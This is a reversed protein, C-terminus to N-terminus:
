HCRQHKPATQYMCYRQRNNAKICWLHTVVNPKVLGPNPNRSARSTAELNLLMMPDFEAQKKQNESWIRCKYVPLINCVCYPFMRANQESEKLLNLRNMHVFTRYRKECPLHARTHQSDQEIHEVTITWREELACCVCFSFRFFLLWFYSFSSELM